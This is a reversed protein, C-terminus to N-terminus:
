KVARFLESSEEPALAQRAQDRVNNMASFFERMMVVLLYRGKPTLTILRDNRDFAGALRMYAMELWLSREVSTGFSEKFRQKDLKLGFLDMMLRYRMQERLNFTRMQSASMRGTAICREYERLSFTNVYLTGDLYSFAGSGIGVYEEYDVIYEDIMSGTHRSFCWASTPSFARVLETSLIEYYEAERAYNVKGITNEMSGAVSTSTMLTYFTTQTVASDIVTRIDERLIEETQNPFNFIMDANLTPFLGAASELHRLIQDGSGYNEYRQMQKLLDDNFSQVGVSLRQVRGQLEGIVKPTLHNPNTECSVETVDFLTRALDITQSLEDTLITPTGGGIYVAPFNYGLGAAMHMEERLRKFYARASEEVFPFRNFSCYPCLQECFPIHVYLLYSLDPKPPPLTDLVTPALLLFRNIEFRLFRTLLRESIM